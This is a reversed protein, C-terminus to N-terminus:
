YRYNVTRFSLAPALDLYVMTAVLVLSTLAEMGIM